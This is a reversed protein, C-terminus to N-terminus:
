RKLSLAENKPALASVFFYHFVFYITKVYKSFLCLNPDDLISMYSRLVGKGLEVATSRRKLEPESMRLALLDARDAPLKSFSTNM